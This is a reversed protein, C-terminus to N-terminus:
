QKCCIWSDKFIWPASWILEETLVEDLYNCHKYSFKFFIFFITKNNDVDSPLWARRQFLRRVSVSSGWWRMFMAVPLVDCAIVEKIIKVKMLLYSEDISLKWLYIVKMLLKRCYGVKILLFSEDFFLKWWYIVKLLLCSEDISLKLWYVVKMWLYSEDFFLM